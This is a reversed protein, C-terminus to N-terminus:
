TVSTDKFFGDEEIMYKYQVIAVNLDRDLLTWEHEPAKLNKKVAKKHLINLTKIKGDLISKQEQTLTIRNM